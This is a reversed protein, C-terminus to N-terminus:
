YRRTGLRLFNIRVDTLKRVVYAGSAREDFRGWFVLSCRGFPLGDSKSKTRQRRQAPCFYFGDAILRGNRERNPFRAAYYMGDVLIMVVLLATREGTRPM